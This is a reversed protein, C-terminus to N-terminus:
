INIIKKIIIKGPLSELVRVVAPETLGFLDEGTVYKPFLQVCRNEKRLTAIGELINNWVAKPTCDKFEIDEEANEQVLVRFEPRGSLEHISCIYRCRKNLKRMSWYFRIIKYGIPYIFNPTHFNQLQHPLLQGVNLFILSGVRLLNNTESHHMVAAVQRNEDRNVYVRRTVALTTLENDKESRSAHETCYATKNKYFVCGDKVACGLHYINSCRTKFCRITAGLKNCLICNSSLSQQLATELNMLAGNVTEYVGDSWLGCNLHVWKDVDFNLLRAPGDGVGDGVNHCFMCKRTDDPIKTPTITIQMRYLLELTEKDTPRKFKNSTQFSNVAWKKYRTGKHQFAPPTGDASTKFADSFSLTNETKVSPLLSNPPKESKVINYDVDMQEVLHVEQPKKNFELQELVQKKKQTIAKDKQCM